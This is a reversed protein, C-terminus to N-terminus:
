KAPRTAEPRGYRINDLISRHLLSIDQPVFSIARRLSDQTIHAIDQGDILIRGRDIDHFRQLLSLVTSKGGGSRGVLGTRRGAAVALSFDELCSAVAPIASHSM